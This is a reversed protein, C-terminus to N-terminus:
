SARNSIQPHAPSNQYLTLHGQVMRAVSFVSRLRAQGSQGLQKAWQPQRLIRILASALAQSDAPPVLIGTEETQVIEPLASVQTAVVPLGASMGELVVLGFGEWLSPVVLVDFASMWQSANSQWGLFHICCPMLLDEAQKELQPRQVGEGILLLQVGPVAHAIEPFAALLFRVGKQETLRGVFGIVPAHQPIGVTKRLPTSTPPQIDLGYHCVRVKSAPIGEVTEVFNALAHSIAIVCEARRALAQNLWRVISRKRFPDDNHRSQFVRASAPAALTGHLDAHIGHTHVIDPKLKHLARRLSWLALPDFDIRIPIRHCTIGHKQLDAIFTTLTQAPPHLLFVHTEVGQAQLGACLVALHKEYGAVGVAKVIHAIVFPM